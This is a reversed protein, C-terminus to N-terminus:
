EVLAIAFGDYGKLGVTQLATATLDSREALMDILARAGQVKPDSSRENWVAGERVVNDGIILTGPRSLKLARDLYVPNSPKDADIFILDFPGEKDAIIQDLSDKASGLRVDVVSSLGATELNGRAIDVAQPDIDLTIVRGQQGVARALWITSYGGLTGIELVRQAGIARAIIHLFAGLTPSVAYPGLGAAESQELAHDLAEDGGILRDNFYADVRSPLDDNPM